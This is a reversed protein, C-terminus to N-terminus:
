AAEMQIIRPCVTCVLSPMKEKFIQDYKAGCNDPCRYEAMKDSTIIVQQHGCNVCDFSYFYFVTQVNTDLTRGTYSDYAQNRM